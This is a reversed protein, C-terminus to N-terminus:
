GRAKLREELTRLKRRLELDKSVRREIMKLGHVVTSHDRGGLQAGITTLPADTLRRCLYMALQRPVAVRATRRPSSLEMRSLEFVSCVEGIVRDVTPPEAAVPSAGAGLVERVLALDIPRGSFHAFAGVRTLTGELERVNPCYGEALYEEADPPLSLELAAAKRRMLARRLAPDPADIQAQLGCALRSRLAAEFGPMEHPARDSAIVIQKRGEHLTKFTHYFEEQSRRKDGLFQIDDIVLVAISRFRQRFREMQDRRDNRMAVIVENVFTEASLRLVRGHCRAATLADAIACLLHTKGLGVGGSVFLPNFRLGPQEVVARAAAYAVQNSIGVVFNDFSYDTQPPATDQGGTPERRVARPRPPPIDLVRNVVLRITTQRGSALTVAQELPAQFHEKLWDCFFGSPAELTLEGSTWEAARLPEIWASFDKEPLESRLLRRAELWITDLM